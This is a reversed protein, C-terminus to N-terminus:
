QLFDLPPDLRFLSIVPEACNCAISCPYRNGAYTSQVAYDHPTGLLSAPVHHIGDLCPMRTIDDDIGKATAKLLAEKRSWLLHFDYAPHSSDLIFQLEQKCFCENLVDQWAFSPDIFSVDIGVEHRAIAILILDGSHSINYHFPPTASQVLLPKKNPGAVFRISAASHGIYGALLHRLLARSLIFRLQDHPHHYRSARQKEVEDLVTVCLEALHRCASIAIRWVHIDNGHLQQPPLSRTWEPDNIEVCRVQPMFQDTTASAM